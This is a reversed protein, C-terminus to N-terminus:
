GSRRWLGALPPVGVPSHSSREHARAPSSDADSTERTEVLRYAGVSLLTCVVEGALLEAAMPNTPCGMAELRREADGIAASVMEPTIEIEASAQRDTM